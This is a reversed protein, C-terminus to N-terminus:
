VRLRLAELSPMTDPLLPEQSHCMPHRTSRHLLPSGQPESRNQIAQSGGLVLARCRRRLSSCQRSRAILNMPLCHVPRHLLRLKPRDQLYPDVPWRLCTPTRRRRIFVQLLRLCTATPNRIAMEMRRSVTRRPSASNRCWESYAGQRQRQLMSRRSAASTNQHAKPSFTSSNAAARRYSPSPPVKLWSTWSSALAPQSLIGRHPVALPLLAGRHPRRRPSPNTTPAM